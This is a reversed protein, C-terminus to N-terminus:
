IPSQLPPQYFKFCPQVLGRRSFMQTYWHMSSNIMYFSNINPFHHNVHPSPDSNCLKSIGLQFIPSQFRQRYFKLSSEALGMKQVDVQYGKATSKIRELLNINPSLSKITNIHKFQISLSILDTSHSKEFQSHFYAQWTIM